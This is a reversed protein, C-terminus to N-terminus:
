IVVINIAGKLEKSIIVKYRGDVEEIRILEKLNDKLAKKCFKIGERTLKQRVIKVNRNVLAAIIKSDITTGLKILSSEEDSWVTQSKKRKIADLM